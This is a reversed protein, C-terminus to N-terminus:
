LNLPGLATLVLPRVRRSTQVSWTLSPVRVVPPARLKLTRAWAGDTEVAYAPQGNAYGVAVCDAADVCSIRSLFGGYGSPDPIATIPGWIGNVQNVYGGSGVATCNGPSTCSVDDLYAETPYPLVSFTSWVGNTETAVSPESTPFGQIGVATCNTANSCSVSLLEDGLGSNNTFSSGEALAAPTGWNGDVETDYTGATPLGDLAGEFSGNTGSYGVATCNSTSTCSVSEFGDQETTSNPNGPVSSPLWLGNGEKTVSYWSNSIGLPNIVGLEKAGVTM